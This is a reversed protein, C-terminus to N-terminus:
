VIKIICGHPLGTAFKRIWKAEIMYIYLEVSGNYYTFLKTWTDSYINIWLARLVLAGIEIAIDSVIFVSGFKNYM